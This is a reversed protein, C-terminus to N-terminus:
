GDAQTNIMTNLCAPWGWRQPGRRRRHHNRNVLVLVVANLRAGLGVETAREERETVRHHNWDVLVLVVANLRAGLGVETAREEGETVRHHNWDVLVLVVANM